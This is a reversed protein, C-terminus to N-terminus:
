TRIFKMLANKTPDGEQYVESGVSEFGQTALLKRLDSLSTFNRVQRVTESWSYHLGANFVDHALAVLTTRYMDAADHDRVILVSGPTMVRHLSDIFPHLRDSPSHHFGIYITALDISKDEITSKSIQAYNNLNSFSGIKAIQGREMIDAPAYSAAIDHLLHVPGHFDNMKRIDAIHRGTTGIELYARKAKYGDLLKFTQAAMEEKQKKLAPLAYTFDAFLPKIEKVRRLLEVYIERDTDYKKTLEFILTHFNEDPYLHFVNKLFLQFEARKAEDLYIAKFNGAGPALDEDVIKEGAVYKFFMKPAVFALLAVSSAAVIFERRSLSKM